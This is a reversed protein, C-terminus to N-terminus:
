FFFHYELEKGSSLQYDKLEKKIKEFALYISQFEDIGYSKFKMTKEPFGIKCECFCDKNESLSDPQPAGIVLEVIENTEKIPYTTKIM